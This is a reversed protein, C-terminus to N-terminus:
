MREPLLATAVVSCSVIIKESSLSVDPPHRYNLLCMVNFFIRGQLLATTSLFNDALPVSDNACRRYRTFTMRSNPVPPNILLPSCFVRVSVQGQAM